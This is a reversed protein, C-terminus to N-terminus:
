FSGIQTGEGGPPPPNPLPSGVSRKWQTASELLERATQMVAAGATVGGLMQAIERVREDDGLREVRTVTRGGEVVKTVAFHADAYAAVQPLHTICLVQHQRSLHWLKEGVVHGMRGGIGQDLEDFILVPTEDVASLASKLALM